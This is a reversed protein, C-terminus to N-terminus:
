HFYVFPNHRAAYQDGVKASQTNDRAGSAPHRCTKPETESNGMDEMYGKWTLGKATLQDAITLVWAPFVCGQGLAQGDPGMTGPVMETFFQCDSQTNSNATQGSIMSLYDGASEHQTGYYQRLLQGKATLTQALYPAQTEAGFTDDFNNNELVIIFVHKIPPLAAGAGAPTGILCAAALAIAFAARSRMTGM